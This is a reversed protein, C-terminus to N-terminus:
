NSKFKFRHYGFFSIIATLILLTILRIYAGKKIVPPDFIFDITHNGHPVKLGRLVYNIPFFDAKEKDITVHWGKPYYMESFVVFQKSQSQIEYILEDPATKTLEINTLSDKHYTMALDNPFANEIVLAESSFDTTKLEELLADASPTVKIKEVPWATGLM